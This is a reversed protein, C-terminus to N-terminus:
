REARAREKMVEVLRAAMVSGTVPWLLGSLACWWTPHRGTALTVMHHCGALLYLALAILEATM